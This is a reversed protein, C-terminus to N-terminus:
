LLNDDTDNVAQLTATHLKHAIERHGYGEALSQATANFDNAQHAYAGAELLLEVIESHGEQAAYILATNGIRGSANVDAGAEILTQVEATHGNAAALMLDTTNNDTTEAVATFATTLAFAATLILTRTM